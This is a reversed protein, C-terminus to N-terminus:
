YRRRRPFSLAHGERDRLRSADALSGRNYSMPCAADIVGAQLWEHWAQGKDLSAVSYNPFVAASVILQPKAQHAALAIQQVAETVVSQRWTKWQKPYLYHWALR